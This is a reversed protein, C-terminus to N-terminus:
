PKGFKRPSNDTRKVDFIHKKPPLHHLIVAVFCPAMANRLERRLLKPRSARDGCKHIIVGHLLQGWDGRMVGWHGHHQFQRAGGDHHAATVAHFFSLAQL